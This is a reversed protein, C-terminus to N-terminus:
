GVWATHWLFSRADNLRRWVDSSLTGYVHPKLTYVKTVGRERCLDSVLNRAHDYLTQNKILSASHTKAEYGWSYIRARPIDSPLLDTLWNVGSKATWSGERKGDLGHVAVISYRMLM